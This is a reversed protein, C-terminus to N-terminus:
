GITHERLFAAGKDILELAYGPERGTAQWAIPDRLAAEAESIPVPSTENAHWDGFTLSIYGQRVLNILEEVASNPADPRLHPFSAAFDWLAFHDDLLFDLVIIQKQDM